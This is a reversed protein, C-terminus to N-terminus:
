ICKQGEFVSIRFNGRWYKEPVKSYRQSPNKGLEQKNIVISGDTPELEKLLLKILTSKGSGSDGVV